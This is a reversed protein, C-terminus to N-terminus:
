TNVLTIWNKGDHCQSYAKGHFSITRVDNKKHKQQEPVKIIDKSENKPTVKSENNPTVKFESNPTVKALLNLGDGYKTDHDFLAMFVRKSLEKDAALDPECVWRNYSRYAILYNQPMQRISESGQEYVLINEM